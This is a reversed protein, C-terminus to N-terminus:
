SLKLAILKLYKLREEQDKFGGKWNEKFLHKYVIKRNADLITATLYGWRLRVYGIIEDELYIDYQEPNSSSTKKFLLNNIKISGDDLTKINSKSIIEIGLEELLEIFINSISKKGM